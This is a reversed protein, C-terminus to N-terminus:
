RRREPRVTICASGSIGASRRCGRCPRASWDSQRRARRPTDRRDGLATRCWRRADVASLDILETETEDAIMLVGAIERLIHEDPRISPQMAELPVGREARPQIPDAHVDAQVLDGRSPQDGSRNCLLTEHAARLTRGIEHQAFLAGLLHAGCDRPQGSLLARRQNEAHVVLERVVLNRTDETARHAGHFGVEKVCQVVQLFQQAGYSADTAKPIRPDRRRRARRRARRADRATRRTDRAPAHRASSSAPRPYPREAPATAARRPDNEAPPAVRSRWPATAEAIRTRAEVSAPM